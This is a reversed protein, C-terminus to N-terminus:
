YASSIETYIYDNVKQLLDSKNEIYKYLTKKSIALFRCLDDMSINRVGHEMFIKFASTIINQYKIDNEAMFM